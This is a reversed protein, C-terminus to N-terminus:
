AANEQLRAAKALQVELIEHNRVDRTVVLWAQCGAGHFWLERQPGRLNPRLYVYAAWDPTPEAGGDTPRRVSADGAYSFEDHGRKGCYPCEIRM